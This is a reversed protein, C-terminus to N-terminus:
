ASRRQEQRRQHATRSATTCAICPPENRRRHAHYGGETGHLIPRRTPQRGVLARRETVSLGGWVGFDIERHALAFALCQATVACHACVKKAAAVSRGMPEPYFIEPNARTCEADLMWDPHEVALLTM